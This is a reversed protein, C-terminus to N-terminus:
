KSIESCYKLLNTIEKSTLSKYSLHHRRFYARVEKRHKKFYRIFAQKTNVKAWKGDVLLFNERFLDGYEKKGQTNLDAMKRYKLLFTLSQHSIKEFYGFRQSVDDYLYRGIFWKEQYYISDVSKGLIIYRFTNKAKKERLVFIDEEANYRLLVDSFINNNIFVKSLNFSDSYFANGESPYTYPLSFLGSILIPDQGMVGQKYEIIQCNSNLTTQSNGQNVGLFIFYVVFFVNTLLHIKQM